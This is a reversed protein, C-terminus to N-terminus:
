DRPFSGALDALANAEPRYAQPVTLEVYTPDEATPWDTSVFVTGGTAPVPLWSVGNVMVLQADPTLAAPREVGCRLVIPPEGWAATAPSSPTTPRRGAGDVIDPLALRECAASTPEPPTVDVHRGCGSTSVLAAM